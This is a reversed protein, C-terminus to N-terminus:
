KQDKRQFVDWIYNNSMVKLAVGIGSGSGDKVQVIAM